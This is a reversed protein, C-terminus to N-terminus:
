RPRSRDPNARAVAILGHCPVCDRNQQLAPGLERDFYPRVTAVCSPCASTGVWGAAGRSPARSGHSSPWSSRGSRISADGPGRGSASSRRQRVSIEVIHRSRAIAASAARTFMQRARTTELLSGLELVDVFRALPPVALQHRQEHRRRGTRAGADAHRGCSFKTRRHCAIPGFPQGALHESPM